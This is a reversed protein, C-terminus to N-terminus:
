DKSKELATVNDCIKRWEGRFPPLILRICAYPPRFASSTSAPSARLVKACDRLRDFIVGCLFYSWM